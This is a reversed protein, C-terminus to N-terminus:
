NEDSEPKPSANVCYSSNCIGYMNWASESLIGAAGIDVVSVVFSQWVQTAEQSGM